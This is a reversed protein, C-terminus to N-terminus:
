AAMRYQFDAINIINPTQYADGEGLRSYIARHRGNYDVAAMASYTAVELPGRREYPRFKRPELKYEMMKKIEDAGKGLDVYGMRSPMVKPMRGLSYSKMAGASGGAKGSYGAAKGM